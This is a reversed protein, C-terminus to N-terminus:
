RTRARCTARSSRASISSRRRRPMARSSRRAAAFSAGSSILTSSISSPRTSRPSTSRGVRRNRRTLPIADRLSTPEAQETRQATSLRKADLTVKVPIRKDLAEKLLRGSEDAGASKEPLSFIRQRENFLYQYSKDKGRRIVAVTVLDTERTTAM